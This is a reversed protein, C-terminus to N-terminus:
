GKKHQLLAHGGGGVYIFSELKAQIVGHARKFQNIQHPEIGAQVDEFVQMLRQSLLEAWARQQHLVDFGTAQSALAAFPNEVIRLLAGRVDFYLLMLLHCYSIEGCRTWGLPVKGRALAYRKM